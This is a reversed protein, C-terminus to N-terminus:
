LNIVCQGLRNEEEEFWDNDHDDDFQKMDTWGVVSTDALAGADNNKQSSGAGAESDYIYGDLFHSFPSNIIM